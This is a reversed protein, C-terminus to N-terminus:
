VPIDGSTKVEEMVTYTRTQRVGPLGVLTEGLFTRYAAMDSVRAKILYDFGGAIMNCEIIDPVRRVAIAFDDFIAQNTRDLTIEVFILLGRDLKEPNLRVTYGEIM